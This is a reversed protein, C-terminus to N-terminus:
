NLGYFLFADFFKVETKWYFLMGSILNHANDMRETKGSVGASGRRGELKIDTEVARSRVMDVAGEGGSGGEQTSIGSVGRRFRPCLLLLLM